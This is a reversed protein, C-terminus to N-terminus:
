GSHLACIRKLWIPSKKPWPPMRQPPVWDWATVGAEDALENIADIAAQMQQHGYTIAGLMIEESLELAESEVM